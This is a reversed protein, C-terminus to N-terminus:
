DASETPEKHLSHLDMFSGMAEMLKGPHKENLAMMIDKAAEHRADSEGEESKMESPKMSAESTSGDKERRRGIITTYAKDKDIMLM